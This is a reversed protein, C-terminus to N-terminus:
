GRLGEAFDRLRRVARELQHRPISFVARVRERDGCWDGPNLVVHTAQYVVAALNEPTLRAGSPGHRRGLWGTVRPALFLGGRERTQDGAEAPFVTELLARKEALERRQAALYDRLARHREPHHLAGKSTRGYASYVHAAAQAVVTHVRGLAAERVAAALEADRTALFGLRLGGAALEKSLGGLLVTRLGVGPVAQELAVPSAVTEAAQNSLNVLGFIEDSVLLLRQEVAHASLAVLEERTLYSGAPNQPQSIVVADPASKGRRALLQQLPLTQVECGAALLTPELVGYCPGLLDVRPARGLRRRLATFLDHFLPWVGQAVVLEDGRYRVGRTDLLFAAIGATLGSRLAEGGETSQACALVLGEALLRPIPGENEGYDLRVLEPDHEAFVKPAFAPLGALRAMRRSRPLPLQPPPRTRPAEPREFSIRFSLLEAFLRQYFWQPLTGIRSYTVEAAIGLDAELQPPLPLLLTLEFDPFVANKILGYLVVLNPRHPERALFEFLTRPEVSTTINFYVSEDLLVLIGRRAAEDIIERLAAKNSREGPEVALLVLKVEFAGLLRRVERLTNNTVVTRVGAKALAKAYTAHLNRSILVADGEDCTALALSFVTQEREPGVFIEKAGLALGFYRQLYRTIEVRLREDGAEHAYPITPDSRLRLALATVFGLQEQTAASLDLEKLLGGEGLERLAARLALLDRQLVPRAEWVAVEHWIPNGAKLWGQATAACIPEPSHAETFFEFEREMRQELSVLPHIDTDQAQTVRRAFLIRTSFGRRSFMREIIHRGPRGALNLLLRAGPAFREPVEDLLRAILGLGFHDEYVNQVATYNSLDYLAQEDHGEAAAGAAPGPEGERLVQPICGVVFDWEQGAPLALLLDSEGFSLRAALEAGGNLFANCWAVANSQPNLDVGCLQALRTFKALAICIWGSGTGVEVLRKGAYEELPVKLLGELFTYAWAEPAFITPLLLVEIREQLAGVTADVVVLRLPAGEPKDRALDALERLEAMAPGRTAPDRLRGSLDRLLDAAERASAPFNTAM